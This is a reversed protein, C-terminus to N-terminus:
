AGGPAPQADRLPARLSVRLGPGEDQWHVAGGLRSARARLNARGRGGPTAAAPPAGAGNDVVDVALEGHAAAVRVRVETARAHKLVNTLAEQVVHLVQLADHPSLAPAAGDAPEPLALDWHPTLGAERLRADWRFRFNGFAADLDQEEGALAELTVRMQDIAGRLADAMATGDMAGREARLLSTFLQAGLGDHLDRMIRQREDTAAQERQLVAIRQYNAAIERERERVRAELTRNAQEVADLTHVFRLALLVGMVLLLLNAAHHLLFLKHASWGPLAELLLPSRTALLQDHVGALVGLVLTAALALSAPTRRRWAAALAVGLLGLGVLLLGALWLRMAAGEEGLAIFLLPGLAAYGLLGRTLGRRTWGALALAFLAMAAVFGGTAGHYVARWAEWAAPPLQELVFTSTRQAWLLAALGFLGYLRESRRRWWILLVLVGVVTGAVWTLIPLTRVVFLRREYAPRLADLAGLALPPLETASGQYEAHAQILLANGGARLAGPPLPLLWPREYRVRLADSGPAIEAVAVGNLLVRGGGHFYPLYLAAPGDVSPAQWQLRYWASRGPQPRGPEAPLWRPDDAAPAQPQESALVQLTAPRQLPTATAPPAMAALLLAAGALLLGRGRAALRAAAESCGWRGRRM